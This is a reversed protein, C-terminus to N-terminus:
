EGRLLRSAEALAEPGPEPAEFGRERMHDLFEKDPLIAHRDLYYAMELPWIWEGDSAYGLPVRPPLSPDVLDETLGPSRLVTGGGGLFGLVRQTLAPDESRVLEPKLEVVAGNLRWLSAVKM